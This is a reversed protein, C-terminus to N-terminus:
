ENVYPAKSLREKLSAADPALPMLKLYTEYYRKALAYDGARDLVDALVLNAYPNDPNGSVARSAFSRANEADGMVNYAIALRTLARSDEQFGGVQFKRYLEPIKQPANNKLLFEAAEVFTGVAAPRMEIERLFSSAAEDIMGAQEYARAAFLYIEPYSPQVKAAIEFNRAAEVFKDQRQLVKAIRVWPEAQSPDLRAAQSYIEIAKSPIGQRDYLNGGALKLKASFPFYKISDQLVREADGFLQSENMLEIYSVRLPLNDPNQKIQNAISDLADRIGVGGKVRCRYFLQEARFQLEGKGHLMALNASKICALYNDQALLTEAQFYHAWGDNPSQKLYDNFIRHAELYERGLSHFLGRSRLHTTSGVSAKALEEYTSQAESFRFLKALAWVKGFLADTNKPDKALIREFMSLADSWQGEFALHVGVVFLYRSGDALNSGLVELAARDRANLMGKNSRSLIEEAIDKANLGDDGLDWWTKEAGGRFAIDGGHLIELNALARQHTESRAYSRLFDAFQTWYALQISPPYLSLSGIGIIFDRYANQVQVSRSKRWNLQASVFWLYPSEPDISALQLLWTSMQADGSSYAQRIKEVVEFDAVLDGKGYTPPIARNVGQLWASWWVADSAMWQLVSSSDDKALASMKEWDGLTHARAAEFVRADAEDVLKEDELTKWLKQGHAVLKKALALNVVQARLGLLQFDISRQAWFVSTKAEPRSLTEPTINLRAVIRRANLSYVFNSSLKAHVLGEPLKEEQPLHLDKLTALLPSSYLKATEAEHVSSTDRSSSPGGSNTALYLLAFAAALGAILFTKKKPAAVRRAEPKPDNASLKPAQFPVTSSAPAENEPTNWIPPPVPNGSDTFRTKEDPGPNSLVETQTGVPGSARTKDAADGPASVETNREARKVKKGSIVAHIADFFEPDTAIAKWETEGQYLIKEEGRIKKTEIFNLIEDRAYPGYIKGSAMQVQVSKEAVRTKQDKFFGTKDDKGM